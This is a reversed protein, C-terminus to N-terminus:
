RARAARPGATNRRDEFTDQDHDPIGQEAEAYGGIKTDLIVLCAELEAVHARVKERHAALLARRAPGTDAGKARLDAYRLMDRIPMGTTKLRRLFEIWVLISADYDRQGSGDRDARPLLRIREYYRLTHTSLGTRKAVDGIKM